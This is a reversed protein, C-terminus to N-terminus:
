SKAHDGGATLHLVAMRVALGNTVQDLIVSQPGDAVSSSVEIGRNIPGPHMILADKSVLKMIDRTLGYLRGYERVSPFLSGCHREFQVRLLNIVDADRVAEEMRYVIKVGLENLGRPIMTPPCCVTVEAGLTLLGWINSRAVRSHLIDGIISVKLGKITKKKELITFMDLLCQTPHEHYGDGANLVSAKLHRSLLEPVGAHVHRVIISNVKLAEINKATDLLSEGKTLSSSDSSINIIDASLRKAALEFSVRTRTSPECFFLAITKGRLIPVKKIPRGLLEKYSKATEFISEIEEKQLDKISILDKRKWTNVSM